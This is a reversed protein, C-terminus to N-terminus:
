SGAAIRAGTASLPKAYVLAARGRPYFNGERGERGYGHMEYLHIASTNEADVHLWIIQAGASQAASEILRLLERGIGRGRREPTVEITQIYAIVAGADRTWDVVAFGAIGGDEDAIWTAANASRVLQRLYSQSFRFPPEFCAVEVAYLQAFDDPRYPRYLM